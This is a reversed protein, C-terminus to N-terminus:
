LSKTLSEAPMAWLLFAAWASQYNTVTNYPVHITYNVNSNFCNVGLTPPVSAHCTIDSINCNDFAYNGISTIDASLTLSGTLKTCRAFAAEDIYSITGGLSSLGICSFFAIM